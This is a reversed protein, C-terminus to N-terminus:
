VNGLTRGSIPLNPQGDRGYLGAADQAAGLLVTLAKQNSRLKLQIVEGNTQNLHHARAALGLIEDWAGRMDPASKQVWNTMDSNSAKLNLQRRRTNAIENLKLAAQSKAEALTLLAESDQSLLVLQEKELLTIFTRLAESEVKLQSALSSKDFDSSPTTL